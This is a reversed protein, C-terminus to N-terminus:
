KVGEPILEYAKKRKVRVKVYAGPEAGSVDLLVDCAGGKLTASVVATKTGLKSFDYKKGCVDVGLAAERGGDEVSYYLWYMGEEPIFLRFNCPQAGTGWECKVYGKPILSFGTDPKKKGAFVQMYRGAYFGDVHALRVDGLAGAFLDARKDLKMLRDVDSLFRNDVDPEDLMLMWSRQQKAILGEVEDMTAVKEVVLKDRLEKTLYYDVTDAASESIVLSDGKEASEAIRNLATAWNQRAMFHTDTLCRFDMVFYAIFLIALGFVAALIRVFMWISFIGAADRGRLSRYQYYVAAALCLAVPPILPVPSDITLPAGRGAIAGFIVLAAAIALLKLVSKKNAILLSVLGYLVPIAAVAAVAANRMAFGGISAVYLMAAKEFFGANAGAGFGAASVPHEIGGRLGMVFLLDIVVATLFCMLTRTRAAKDAEGAGAESVAYALLFYVAARWEVFLLVAYFVVVAAMGVAGGKGKGRWVVPAAAAVCFLLSLSQRGANMSIFALAPSLFLFFLTLLALGAPFVRKLVGYLLPFCLAGFLLAPFRMVPEFPGRMGAAVAAAVSYLADARDHTLSYNFAETANGARAANMVNIEGTWFRTAGLAGSHAWLFVAGLLLAAAWGAIVGARGGKKKAEAEM